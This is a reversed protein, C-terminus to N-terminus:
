YYLKNVIRSQFAVARHLSRILSKYGPVKRLVKKIRNPLLREKAQREMYWQKQNILQEKIPHADTKSWELEELKGKHFIAVFEVSYEIAECEEIIEDTIEEWALNNYKTDSYVHTYFNISGTYDSNTWEPGDDKIDYSEDTVFWRSKKLRLRGRPTIEYTNMLSDMCKTQFDENKWDIKLGKTIACLPLKKRCFITDFM